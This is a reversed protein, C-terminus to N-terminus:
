SDRCPLRMDAAALLPALVALLARNPPRTKTPNPHAWGKPDVEDRDRRWAEFAKDLKWNHEQRAVAFTLPM